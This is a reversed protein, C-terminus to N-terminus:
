YSPLLAEYRNIAEAIPTPRWPLGILQFNFPMHLGSGGAGYYVVLREMPLYVEGILIREAYEDIVQRMGGIVEHVDPMDASFTSLLERFAPEGVQYEPNRPN